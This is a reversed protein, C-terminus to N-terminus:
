RYCLLVGALVAATYLSPSFTYIKLVFTSISVYHNEDHKFNESDFNIQRTIFCYVMLLHLENVIENANFSLWGQTKISIGLYVSLFDNLFRRLNLKNM